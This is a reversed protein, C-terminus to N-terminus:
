HVYHEVAGVVFGMKLQIVSPRRVNARVFETLTRLAKNEDNSAVIKGILIGLIDGENTEDACTMM